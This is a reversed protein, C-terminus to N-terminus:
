FIAFARKASFNVFSKQFDQTIRKSKRNLGLVGLINDNSSILVKISTKEVNEVNPYISKLSLAILKFVTKRFFLFIPVIARELVSFVSTM